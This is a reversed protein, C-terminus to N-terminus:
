ELIQKPKTPPQPTTPPQPPTPRPLQMRSVHPDGAFIPDAMKPAPRADIIIIGKTAANAAPPTADATGAFAAVALLMATPIAIARATALAIARLEAILDANRDTTTTM